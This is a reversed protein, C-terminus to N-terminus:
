RGVTRGNTTGSARATVTLPATACASFCTEKAATSRGPSASDATGDVRRAGSLRFSAPPSSNTAKTTNNHIRSGDACRGTFATPTQPPPARTFFTAAKAAAHCGVDVNSTPAHSAAAAGPPAAAVLLQTVRPLSPMTNVTIGSSSTGDVTAGAPQQARKAMSSKNFSPTAADKDSKKVGCDAGKKDNINGLSNAAEVDTDNKHSGANSGFVANLEQTPAEAGAADARNRHKRPETENATKNPNLNRKRTAQAKKAAAARSINV